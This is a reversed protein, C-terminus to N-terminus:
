RLKEYYHMPAFGAIDPHVIQIIDSLLRDPHFSVEEFYPRRTCDCAFVMGTHFAKLEKYGHYEALLEQLTAPHENYKYLWVDAEGAKDLVTEFPLSISGSHTDGAFPYHAGADKLMEGIVSKGGPVYWVSGTKKETIVSRSVKSHAATAKLIQYNRDVKEFLAEAEKEKGYLMGYFKMWEARGLASTEMYDATEIIPINIEELKGYGGSNEFPSILLAQPKLDIIKEVDASMGNGCDVIPHPNAKSLPAATRRQVDPIDIYKLDCVGSIAQEAKLDYLLACHVTTFVVSREIPTRVVTAEKGALGAMRTTLDDGKRGKPVLAYTHLTKGENWPDILKVVTYGDYKVITLHRAYSLAVTDGGSAAQGTSSGTCATFIGCLLIAFAIFLKKM